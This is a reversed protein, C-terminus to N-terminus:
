RPKLLPCGYKEAQARLADINSFEGMDVDSSMWSRNGTLILIGSNVDATVAKPRAYCFNVHRDTYITTFVSFFLGFVGIMFLMAIVVGLTAVMRKFLDPAMEIFSPMKTPRRALTEELERVRARLGEIEDRYPETM